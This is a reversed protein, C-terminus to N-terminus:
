NDMRRGFEGGVEGMRGSLAKNPSTSHRYDVPSVRSKGPAASVEADQTNREGNPTQLSLADPSRRADGLDLSAGSCGRVTLLTILIGLIAGGLFSKWRSDVDVYQIEVEPEQLGKYHNCKESLEANDSKLKRIQEKLDAIEALRPDNQDLLSTLSFQLSTKLKGDPLNAIERQTDRIWRLADLQQQLELPVKGLDRAISPSRM